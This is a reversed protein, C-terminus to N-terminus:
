KRIFTLNRIGERNFEMKSFNGKDDKVFHITNAGLFEGVFLNGAYSILPVDYAEFFKLYLMGDKEFFHYTVDLEPSYWAGSASKIENSDPSVPNIAHFIMRDARSRFIIQDNNIIYDDGLNGPILFNCGGIDALPQEYGNESDSIALADKTKLFKMSALTEMNMYAGAKIRCDSKRVPQGSKDFHIFLEAISFLKNTLNYADDTNALCIVTFREEPFRLMESKFGPDVGSHTLAKKNKYLDIELGFAYPVPQGNNLKGKQLQLRQVGRGFVPEYFQSDWKVLDDATTILGTSGYTQGRFFAPQYVTQGNEVSAAYGTAMSTDGQPFVPVFRSHDMGLPKFIHQQTFDPFSMKSVREVIIALLVYGSNNYEFRDGPKFNRGTQRSLYKLVNANTYEEESKYSMATLTFGERLGSTHYVLHMVRITDPTIPLEPLFKRIDDKLSIKKQDVLMAIAIGTFQKSMSAVWIPRNNSNPIGSALNAEGFSRNWIKKGKSLIILEMGPTHDRNWSRFISDIKKEQVVSVQAGANLGALIIGAFIAAFYFNLYNRNLTGQDQSDSKNKMTIDSITFFYIEPV